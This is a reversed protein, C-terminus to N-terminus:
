IVLFKVEVRYVGIQGYGGTSYKGVGATDAWFFRRNKLTKGYKEM